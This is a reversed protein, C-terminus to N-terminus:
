RAVITYPVQDTIMNILEETQNIKSRGFNVSLYSILVGFKLNNERM